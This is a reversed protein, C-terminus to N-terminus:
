GVKRDINYDVSDYSIGQSMSAEDLWDLFKNVRQEAQEKSNGLSHLDITVEAYYEKSPM